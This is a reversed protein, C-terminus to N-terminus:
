RASARMPGFAARGGAVVLRQNARAEFAVDGCGPHRAASVALDAPVVVPASFRAEVTRLRTVDENTLEAAVAVAVALSCVGHLIIGSLGAAHAIAPDRHLPHDDGSAHAYRECTEEDIAVRATLANQAAVTSRLQPRAIDPDGEAPLNARVLLTTRSTAVVESGHTATTDIVVMTRSGTPHVSTVAGVLALPEGICLVREFGFAQAVHLYRTRAEAPVVQRTVAQVVRWLSPVAALPSGEPHGVAGLYAAAEDAVVTSQV